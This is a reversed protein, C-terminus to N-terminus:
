SVKYIVLFDEGPLNEFYVIRDEGILSKLEKENYNNIHYSDWGSLGGVGDKNPTSLAVYGGPRALSEVKALWTKVDYVHELVEFSCVCEFTRDTEWEEVAKNIYEIDVNVSKNLKNAAVIAKRQIDLGVPTIKNHHAYLCFSGAGCGIDLLEKVGQSKLFKITEAYRPQVLGVGDSRIFNEIPRDEYAKRYHEFDKFKMRERPANPKQTKLLDNSWKNAVWQWSNNQIYEKLDIDFTPPSKLTEILKDIFQENPVAIHPNREGMVAFDNSVAICGAGIAKTLAICNIEGVFSCPYAFVGSRAYEKLM